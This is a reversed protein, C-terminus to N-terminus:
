HLIRNNLSSSWIAIIHYKSQKIRKVQEPTVEIVDNDGTFIKVIHHPKVATGTKVSEVDEPTAVNHTFAAANRRTVEEPRTTMTMSSLLSMAVENKEQIEGTSMSSVNTPDFSIIRHHRHEKPKVNEVPPSQKEETSAASSGEEREESLSSLRKSDM